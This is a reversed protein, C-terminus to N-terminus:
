STRARIGSVIRLAHEYNAQARDRAREASRVLAQPDEATGPLTARHGLGRLAEDILKLDEEIADASQRVGAFRSAIYGATAGPDGGLHKQSM